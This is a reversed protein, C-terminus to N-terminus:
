QANIWSRLVRIADEPHHEIIGAIEEVLRVRVPADSDYLSPADAGPGSTMVESAELVPEGAAAGDREVPRLPTAIPEEQPPPLAARAEPAPLATRGIERALPRLGFFVIGAAVALLGLYELLTFLEVQELWGPAATGEVVMEPTAFARSVIEVQDGREDDIGAASRVLATLDDLEQRPRPEIRTTGAADTVPVGDVQVAISLRRVRPGNRVQNMVTRSIEYNLTEEARNSRETSTPAAGDAGPQETPLNNAVTTPTEPTTESRDSEEEVTHTSRAVQSDPDFTEITRSEADFDLDANVEVLVAGLGVSRELLNLIKQRLRAEFGHRAEEIDIIATGGSGDESAARALLVGRDDVITVRDPSLGPVAAGVLHRIGQVQRAELTGGGRLKLFVSASPPQSEREFLERKPEVLHVRAEQVSHLAGITRALEGELARRLNVNALFDSTTLVNTGDLLEYGAPGALPLGNQALDMRLRAADRAPAMVARGDASLRFPTGLTELRSVIEQAAQPELEGFLLTYRPEAARWVLVAFLGLLALAVAGLALIRGPGLVSVLRQLGHGPGFALLRSSGAEPVALSNTM